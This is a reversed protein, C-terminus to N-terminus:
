ERNIYERALGEQQTNKKGKQKGEKSNIRTINTGYVCPKERM